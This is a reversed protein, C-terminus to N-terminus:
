YFVVVVVVTLRRVEFADNTSVHKAQVETWILQLPKEVEISDMMMPPLADLLWYKYTRELDGLHSIQRYKELKTAGPIDFAFWSGEVEAM